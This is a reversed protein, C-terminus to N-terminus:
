EVPHGADLLALQKQEASTRWEQSDHALKPHNLKPYDRKSEWGDLNPARSLITRLMLSFAGLKSGARLGPVILDPNAIYRRATAEFEEPPRGTVM